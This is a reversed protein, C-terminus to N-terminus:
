SAEEVPGAARELLQVRDLLLEGPHQDAHVV